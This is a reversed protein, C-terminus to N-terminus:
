LPSKIDPELRAKVFAFFILLTCIYVNTHTFRSIFITVFTSKYLLREINDILKRKVQTSVLIM